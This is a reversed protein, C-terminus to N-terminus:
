GSFGNLSNVSITSFGQSGQGITLSSPSASLTYSPAPNVTLTIQTQQTLIGSTGTLTVTTTGVAATDSATFTLTSSTTTSTPNFSATVGGPLGSTSLAVSGSFGNLPNVTLTSSSQSGQIVSLSSPSASLTFSAAPNVTLTLQTQRTMSGSTGT